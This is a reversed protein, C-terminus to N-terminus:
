REFPRLFIRMCIQRCCPFYFLPSRAPYTVPDAATMSRNHLERRALRDAPTPPSNPSPRSECIRAQWDGSGTALVSGAPSLDISIVPLSARDASPGRISEPNVSRFEQPGAVDISGDCDKRGLISSRPGEVREGGM